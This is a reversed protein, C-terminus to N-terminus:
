ILCYRFGLSSPLPRVIDLHIHEFRTGTSGFHGIPSIIHQKVKPRQCPICCKAWCRCDKNVSPWLFQKAVLKQTATIGPHTLGHLANFVTCRFITPIYPRISDHSMGCYIEIELDPFNIKKLKLASTNEELIAQLEGDDMQAEALRKYDITETSEIRSLADAVIDSVGSM